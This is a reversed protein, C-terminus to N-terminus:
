RPDTKDNEKLALIAAQRENESDAIAKVPDEREEEWGCMFFLLTQYIAVLCKDEGQNETGDGMSDIGKFSCDSLKEVLMNVYKKENTRALAVLLSLESRVSKVGNSLKFGEVTTKLVHDILDAYENPPVPEDDKESAVDNGGEGEGDWGNKRKKGCSGGESATLTSADDKKPPLLPPKLDLM